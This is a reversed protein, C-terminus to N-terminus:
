TPPVFAESLSSATDFADSDGSVQAAIFALIPCTRLEIRVAVLRRALGRHRRERLAAPTPTISTARTRIVSTPRRASSGLM